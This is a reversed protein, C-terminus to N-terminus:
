VLASRAGAFRQNHCLYEPKINKYKIYVSLLCSVDNETVTWDAITYGVYLGKGENREESENGKVALSVQGRGGFTGTYVYNVGFEFNQEEKEILSIGAKLNIRILAGRIVATFDHSDITMDM